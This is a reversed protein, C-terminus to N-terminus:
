SRQALAIARDLFAQDIEGRSIAAVHGDRDIV